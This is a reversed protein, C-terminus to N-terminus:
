KGGYRKIIEDATLTEALERDDNYFEYNGSSNVKYECLTSEPTESQAYFVLNETKCNYIAPGYVSSNCIWVDDSLWHLDYAFGGLGVTKMSTKDITNRVYVRGSYYRCDEEEYASLTGSPNYIWKDSGYEECFNCFGCLVGDDESYMVDSDDTVEWFTYYNVDVSVDRYNGVSIGNPYEIYFGMASTFYSYNPYKSIIDGYDVYKGNQKQEIIYDLLNNYNEDLEPMKAIGIDEIKDTGYFMISYGDFYYIRGNKEYTTNNPVGFKKEIKSVPSGIDLGCFIDRGLPKTFTLTNIPAAPDAEYYNFAFCNNYIIGLKALSAIDKKGSLFAKIENCCTVAIGSNDKLAATRADMYCCISKYNGWNDYIATRFKGMTQNHNTELIKCIEQQDGIDTNSQEAFAADGLYKCDAFYDAVYKDYENKAVQDFTGKLGKNYEAKASYKYYYMYPKNYLIKGNKDSVIGNEGCKLNVLEDIACLRTNKITNDNFDVRILVKTNSGDYSGYEETTIGFIKGDKDKYRKLSMDNKGSSYGGVHQVKGDIVKFILDCTITHYSTFRLVSEAVGDGDVDALLLSTDLASCGLYDSWGCLYESYDFNALLNIYDPYDKPDYIENPQYKETATVTTEPAVTYSTMTTETAKGDATTEAHTNKAATCGSLIVAALIIPILKKMIDGWM